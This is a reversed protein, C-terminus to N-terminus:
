TTSVVSSVEEESEKRQEQALMALIFNEAPVDMIMRADILSPALAKTPGDDEGV